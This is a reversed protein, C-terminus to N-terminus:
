NKCPMFVTEKILDFISIFGKIDSKEEIRRILGTALNDYFDPSKNLEEFDSKRANQGGFTFTSVKQIKRFTDFYEMLCM